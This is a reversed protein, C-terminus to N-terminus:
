SKLWPHSEVASKSREGYDYLLEEGSEIDRKAVLILRPEDKIPFIRTCVNNETKSHNLLRGLRGSEKTADICYKKNQYEFFYSYCGLEPNLSYEAERLLGAECDILEGAYECILEGRKFANVAFVGRGKEPLVRVELGSEDEDLLKQAIAKEKEVKLTSKSRRNSRRVQFHSTLVSQKLGDNHESNGKKTVKKDKIAQTAPEAKKKRATSGKKKEMKPAKTSREELISIEDDPEKVPPQKEETSRRITIILRKNNNTEKLYCVLTGTSGLPTAVKNNDKEM